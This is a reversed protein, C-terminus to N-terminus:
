GPGGKRAHTRARARAQAQAHMRAHARAHGSPPHIRNVGGGGICKVGGGISCAGAVGAMPVAACMYPPAPGIAPNSSECSPKRKLRRCPGKPRQM